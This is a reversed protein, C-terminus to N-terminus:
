KNIDEGLERNEGGEGTERAKGNELTEGCVRVERSGGGCFSIWFLRRGFLTIAM